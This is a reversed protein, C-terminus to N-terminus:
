EVEHAEQVQDPTATPEALGGTGTAEYDQYNGRVLGGPQRGRLRSHADCDPGPVLPRPQHRRAAPSALLADELARLTDVDLDNDNTSSSCTRGAASCSRWTYGTASAARSRVSGASSTAARSTSGRCTPARPWRDAQRDPDRGRARSRRGSRRRPTSRTGARDRLSSSRRAWACRGADPQEQGTIM